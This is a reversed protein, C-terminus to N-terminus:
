FNCNGEIIDEASPNFPNNFISLGGFEGAVVLGELACFDTLSNNSNISLNHVITNLNNLGELSELVNNARAEMGGPILTIQSLGEISRLAGNNNIKIHEGLSSINSVGDIEVLMQNAIIFLNEGVSTVGRFGDVNQISSNGSVQLRGGVTVVNHLGELSALATNSGIIIGGEVSLLSSLSSIDVISNNPTGITGILLDGNIRTYNNSAFIDVEEQTMLLVDGDFISEEFVDNLTVTINANEFIDGNHVEIIGQLTPNTEFDFLSNDAVTLEGTEPNISFAGAQTENSISFHVSGENTQGNIIGLVEGNLPNEDITINFDSTTVTITTTDDEGSCAVLLLILFTLFPTKM